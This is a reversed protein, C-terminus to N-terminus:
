AARILYRGLWSKRASVKRQAAVQSLRRPEEITVRLWRYKADPGASSSNIERHFPEKTRPSPVDRSAELCDDSRFIQDFVLTRHNELSRKLRYHREFNAATPIRPLVRVEYDFTQLSGRSSFSTAGATVVLTGTMNRCGDEDHLNCYFPFAGPQDALFEFTIGGGGGVKKAIRYADIVFSHPIDESRLTIRVLDGTHVELRPPRFEYRRATVDFQHHPTNHQSVAGAPGCLAASLALLALPALRKM